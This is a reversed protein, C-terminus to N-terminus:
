EIPIPDDIILARSSLNIVDTLTGYNCELTGNSVGTNNGAIITCPNSNANSLTYDDTGNTLSWSVSASTIYENNATYVKAKLKVSEGKTIGLNFGNTESYNIETYTTGLNDTSKFYRAYSAQGTEVTAENPDNSEDPTSVKIPIEAKITEGNYVLSAQLTYHYDVTIANGTISCSTDTTDSITVATPVICESSAAWAISGTCNIKQANITLTENKAITLGNATITRSPCSLRIKAEGNEQATVNIQKTISNLGFDGIPNVTITAASLTINNGKIMCSHTDNSPTLKIDDSDTSWNFQVTSYSPNLELELSKSSLQEINIPNTSDTFNFSTLVNTNLENKTITLTKTISSATTNGTPTVTMIVNISHNDGFADNSGSEPLAPTIYLTNNVSDYRSTIGSLSIGDKTFTTQISFGDANNPSIVLTGVSHQENDNVITQTDGSNGSWSISNLVTGSTSQAESVTIKVSQSDINSGLPSITITDYDETGSEDIPNIIYRNDNNSETDQTIRIHKSSYDVNFVEEATDPYPVIELIGTSDKNINATDETSSMTKNNISIAFSQLVLSNTQDQVSGFNYEISKSVSNTGRVEFTMTCSENSNVTIDIYGSKYDNQHVNELTATAVGDPSFSIYNPIHGGTDTGSFTLSYKIRYTNGSVLTPTADLNISSITGLKYIPMEKTVTFTFPSSGTDKKVVLEINVPEPSIKIKYKGNEPVANLSASNEGISISLNVGEFSIKQNIYIYEQKIEAGEQVNGGSSTEFQIINKLRNLIVEYLNLTFDSDTSFNPNDESFTTRVIYNTMVNFNAEGLTISTGTGSLQTNDANTNQFNIPTTGDQPTFLLSSVNSIGKLVYEDSRYNFTLKLKVSNNSINGLIYSVLGNNGSNLSLAHTELSTSVSQGSCHTPAFKFVVNKYNGVNKHNVNIKNSEYQFPEQGPLYIYLVAYLKNYTAASGLIQIQGTNDRVSSNKIIDLASSNQDNIDSYGVSISKINTDKNPEITEEYIEQPGIFIKYKYSIPEYRKDQNTYSYLGRYNINVSSGMSVSIVNSEMTYNLDMSVNNTIKFLFGTDSSNEMAAQTFSVSPYERITKDLEKIGDIKFANTTQIFQNNIINYNPYIVAEVNKLTHNYQKYDGLVLYPKETDVESTGKDQGNIKIVMNGSVVPLSIDEIPKDSESIFNLTMKKINYYGNESKTGIAETQYPNVGTYLILNEDDISVSASMNEKALPKVKNEISNQIYTILKNLFLESIYLCGDNTISIGSYAKVQGQTQQLEPDVNFDNADRSIQIYDNVNVVGRNSSDNLRAFTLNTTDVFIPLGELVDGDDLNEQSKITKGDIKLTLYGDDDIDLGNKNTRIPYTLQVPNGEYDTAFLAQTGEDEGQGKGEQWGAEPSSILLVNKLLNSSKKVITSPANTVAIGFDQAYIKKIDYLKSM